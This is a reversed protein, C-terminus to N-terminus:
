YMCSNLNKSNVKSQIYKAWWSIFERLPRLIPVATSIDIDSLVSAQNKKRSKKLPKLVTQIDDIRGM